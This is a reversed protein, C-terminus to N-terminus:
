KIEDEFTEFDHYHFLYKEGEERASNFSIRAYAQMLKYLDEEKLTIVGLGLNHMGNIESDEYFKKATM